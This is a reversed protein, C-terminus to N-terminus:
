LATEATRASKSRAEINSAKSPNDILPNVPRVSHTELKATESAISVRQPNKLHMLCSASRPDERVVK